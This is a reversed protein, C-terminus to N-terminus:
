IEENFKSRNRQRIEEAKEPYICTFHAHRNKVGDYITGGTEPEFERVVKGCVWCLNKVRKEKEM